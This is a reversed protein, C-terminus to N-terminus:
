ERLLNFTKPKVYLAIILFLLILGESVVTIFSAALYGFRPIFILNAIVNFVAGGAYVILLYKQKDFIILLYWLLASIFFFPTGLALIQLAPVSGTFRGQYIFPIFFSVMILGFVLLISFLTLLKLWVAIQKKFQNLDSRYLVALLPYLANAFFIPIALSSEFFQYALGYLGVEASSRTNALIFVDIRFYILNLILALGIPWSKSIFIKSQALSFKPLILKKTKIFILYLSIFVFTLGGFVYSITYGLLGGKAIFTLITGLLIVLSGCIAAITSLDYRLIRQFFANATTFLGQTIITLSAVIIGLKVMPSFGIGTQPNYPILFSILIAAIALSLTIFLRLGVLSRLLIFNNKDDALKIYVANIGFDGLTYFYGVFVFIKTFDGYGAEGLARGILITILLTTGATIGKGIIQAGTNYIVKKFM